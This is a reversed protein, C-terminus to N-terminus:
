KCSLWILTLVLHPWLTYWTWWFYAHELVLKRYVGAIKHGCPIKPFINICDGGGTCATIYVKAKMCHYVSFFQLFKVNWCPVSDGPPLKERLFILFLMVQNIGVTNFNHFFLSYKFCVRVRFKRNKYPFHSKVKSIAGERELFYM